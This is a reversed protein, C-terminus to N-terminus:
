AEEAGPIYTFNMGYWGAFLTLPGLLAALVTLRRIGVESREDRRMRYAEIAGEIYDRTADAMDVAERQNDTVDSLYDRIEEATRGLRRLAEQQAVALRRFALFDRRLVILNELAATSARDNRPNLRDELEEAAAAISVLAPLHGDVLADLVEYALM